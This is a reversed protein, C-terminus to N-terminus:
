EDKNIKNTDGPLLHYSKGNLKKKIGLLLHSQEVWLTRKEKPIRRIVSSLNHIKENIANILVDCENPTLKINNEM